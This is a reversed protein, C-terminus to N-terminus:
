REVYPMDEYTYYQIHVHNYNRDAHEIPRIHAYRLANVCDVIAKSDDKWGPEHYDGYDVDIALGYQHMSHPKGRIRRIRNYDPSRFGSSIGFTANPVGAWLEYCPRTGYFVEFLIGEPHIEVHRDLFRFRSKYPLRLHYDIYQQRVTDIDDQKLRHIDTIPIFNPGATAYIRYELLGLDRTKRPQFTATFDFV